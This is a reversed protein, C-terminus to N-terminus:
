ACEAEVVVVVPRRRLRRALGLGLALPDLGSTLENSLHRAVTMIVVRTLWPHRDLYRDVAASLTDDDDAFVDYAVV